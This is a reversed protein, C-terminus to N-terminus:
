GLVHGSHDFHMSSLSADWMCATPIMEKHTSLETTCVQLSVPCSINQLLELYKDLKKM